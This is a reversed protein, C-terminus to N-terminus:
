SCSTRKIAETVCLKIRGDILIARTTENHMQRLPLPLLLFVSAHTHMDENEFISEPNHERRTFLASSASGTRWVSQGEGVM